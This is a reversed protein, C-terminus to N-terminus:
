APRLVTDFNLSVTRDNGAHQDTQPGTAFRCQSGIFHDAPIEGAHAVFFFQQRMNGLQLFLFISRPDGTRRTQKVERQASKDSFLYEYNWESSKVIM